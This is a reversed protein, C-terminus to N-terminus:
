EDAVGESVIFRFVGVPVHIEFRAGAGPTGTETITLGTIALIEGSLFLGLGSNKFYERRFIKEKAGAPVGVGDDECIIILEDPTEETHFSIETITEGHKVANDILNYIVKEFLPDAFVEIDEVDNQLRVATFSPTKGVEEIIRGVDFWDPAQEGLDKYYGTFTIQREITEVAGSIKKIYAETKTGPPIEGDLEIMELYGAAGTIQNLIDHRTISSLLNLKRNAGRIAEEYQKRDTIDRGIGLVGAVDGEPGYLPTKITELLARRGDAAFTIWEENVTPKGAMAARRDNKRFFDALGRDVFDYDTKGVIECEKAGFFREFMSNCAQYIGHDDKLWVLDPITQILTHLRSESERLREESQKRETIDRAITCSYEEDEFTIRYKIIDVPYPTGDPYRHVSEFRYYKERELTAWIREWEERSIEPNIDFIKTRIPAGSEIGFSFCARANAYVILGGKNVFYIEDPSHDFAFQTRELLSEAERRRTIDDVILRAGDPADGKLIPSIHLRLYVEKGWVSVYELEYESYEAGNELVDRLVDAFGAQILNGTQLLNIEATKEIAPSGLMECVKSNVYTINGEPDCTLIGIPANDTLDRFKEESSRFEEEMAKLSTIDTMIGQVGTVKGNTVVPRGNTRVWIFGGGKKLIRYESPRENGALLSHLGRSREARDDPHVFRTYHKGTLDSASYGIISRINPTLYTIVGATDVVFLIENLNEVLSRYNERSIRLAAEAKKKETIDEHVSLICPQGEFTIVLGSILLTKHVGTFTVVEIAYDSVIGQTRIESLWEERQEPNGWIDSVNFGRIDSDQIDFIELTKKNILLVEGEQSIISMSVPIEDLFRCFGDEGEKLRNRARTLEKTRSSREHDEARDKETM